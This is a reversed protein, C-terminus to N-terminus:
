EPNEICIKQITKFFRMFTDDGIKIKMKSCMVIYDACISAMEDDSYIEDYPDANSKWLNFIALGGLCLTESKSFMFYPITNLLVGLGKPSPKINDRVIAKIYHDVKGSDQVKLFIDKAKKEGYENAYQDFFLKVLYGDAFKLMNDHLTSM